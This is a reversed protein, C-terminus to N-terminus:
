VGEGAWGELGGGVAFVVFEEEGCGCVNLEWRFDQVGGDGADACNDFSCAADDDVRLAVLVVCCVEPPIM